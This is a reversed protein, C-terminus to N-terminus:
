QREVLDCHNINRTNHDSKRVAFQHLIFLNLHLQRIMSWSDFIYSRRHTKKFRTNEIKIGDNGVMLM